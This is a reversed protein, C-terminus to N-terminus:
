KDRLNFYGGHHPETTTGLVEIIKGEDLYRDLAAQLEDRRPQNHQLTTELM